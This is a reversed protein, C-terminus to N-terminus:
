LTLYLRGHMYNYKPEVLMEEPINIRPIGFDKRTGDAHTWSCYKQIKRGKFHRVTCNSDYSILQGFTGFGGNSYAVYRSQGLMFLDVFADDYESPDRTRWEYDKDFHIPDANFDLTSGPLKNQRGYEQAVEVAFKFDAAFYVPGGPFLESACNIANVTLKITEHPDRWERNGHM